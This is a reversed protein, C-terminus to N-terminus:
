IKNTTKQTVILLNVAKNTVTSKQKSEKNTTGPIISVSLLFSRQKNRLSKLQFIM